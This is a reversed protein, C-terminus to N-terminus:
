PKNTGRQGLRELCRLREVRAEEALPSSPYKHLLENLFVIAKADDNRTRADLAAALLRNQDSLTSVESSSSARPTAARTAAEPRPAEKADAVPSDESKPKPAPAELPPASPAEPTSPAVAVPASAVEAAPAVKARTLMAASAVGIALVAAIGVALAVRRTRSRRANSAAVARLSAELRPIARARAAAAAREDAVPVVADGLGKVLDRVRDDSM